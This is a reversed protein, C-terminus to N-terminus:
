TRYVHMFTVNGGLGHQGLNHPGADFTTQPNIGSTDDTGHVSVTMRFGDFVLAFQAKDNINVNGYQEQNLHLDYAGEAVAYIKTFADSPDGDYVFAGTDAPVDFQDSFVFRLAPYFILAAVALLLGIQSNSAGKREAAMGYAAEGAKFLLEVNDKSLGLARLTYIAVVAQWFMPNPWLLIVEPTTAPRNIQKIM